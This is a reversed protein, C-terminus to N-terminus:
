RARRTIWWLSQLAIIGGWIVPSSPKYIFYSVFVCFIEVGKTELVSIPHNEVPLADLRYQHFSAFRIHRSKGGIEVLYIWKERDIKKPLSGKEGDVSIVSMLTGYPATRRHSEPGQRAKIAVNEEKFEVQQGDALAAKLAYTAGTSHPRDASGHWIMPEASYPMFSTIIAVALLIGRLVLDLSRIIVFTRTGHM